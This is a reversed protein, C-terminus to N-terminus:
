DMAMREGYAPSELYRDVMRGYADPSRDSIFADIADLSPPLGTLDFAVRRILTERPAPPAPALGEPELRARVFADIPNSSGKAAPSTARSVPSFSWHPRYDAGEAVWRTLLAKEADTLSLNSEAPPMM